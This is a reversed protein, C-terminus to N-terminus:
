KLYKLSFLDSYKIKDLIDEEFELFEFNLKKLDWDTKNEEIINFFELSSGLRSTFALIVETNLGINKMDDSNKAHNINNNKSFYKILEIIKNFNLGHYVIDSAILLDIKDEINKFSPSYNWDLAKIAIECNKNHIETKNLEFNEHLIKLNDERDTLYVKKAGSLSAFLGCIGTGSGIELITKNKMIRQCKNSIMLSSLLYASNWVEGAVGFKQNEIIRISFNENLNIEKIQNEDSSNM